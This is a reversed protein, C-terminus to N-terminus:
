REGAGMGMGGVGDEQDVVVSGRTEVAPACRLQLGDESERKRMQQMTSLDMQLRKQADVLRATLSERRDAQSSV